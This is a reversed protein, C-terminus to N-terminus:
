KLFIAKLDTVKRLFEIGFLEGMAGTVLVLAWAILLVPGLKKM